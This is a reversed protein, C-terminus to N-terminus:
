CCFIIFVRWIEIGPDAELFWYGMMVWCLRVLGSLEASASLYDQSMVKSRFIGDQLVWSDLRFRSYYRPLWICAPFRLHHITKQFLDRPIKRWSSHNGLEAFVRSKEWRLNPVGRVPFIRFCSGWNRYSKGLIGFFVLNYIPGQILWAALARFINLDQITFYPLAAALQRILPVFFTLHLPAEHWVSQYVLM